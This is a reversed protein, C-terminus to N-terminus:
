IIFLLIILHRLKRPLWKLKRWIELSVGEVFRSGILSFLGRVKEIRVVQFGRDELLRRLSYPTFRWFDYPEYHLGWSMPATLIIWGGPRLVRRIEDLVKEKEFVHELVENCIIGDFSGDVFPLFRADGVVTPCRELSLNLGV